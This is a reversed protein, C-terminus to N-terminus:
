IGRAFRGLSAVDVLTEAKVRVKSDTDGFDDGEVGLCGMAEREGGEEGVLDGVLRNRSNATGKGAVGEDLDADGVFIGASNGVPGEEFNVDGVFFETTNGVVGEERLRFSDKALRKVGLFGRVGSLESAEVDSIEETGEVGTCSRVSLM